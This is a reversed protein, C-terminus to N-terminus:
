QKLIYKTYYPQRLLGDPAASRVCFIEGGNIQQCLLPSTVDMREVDCRSVWQASPM